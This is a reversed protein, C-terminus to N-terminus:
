RCEYVTCFTATAAATTTATAREDSFAAAYGPTWEAATSAYDGSWQSAAAYSQQCRSYGQYGLWSVSYLRLDAIAASNSVAHRSRGYWLLPSNLSLYVFYWLKDCNRIYGWYAITYPLFYKVYFMHTLSHGIYTCIYMCVLLHLFVHSGMSISPIQSGQLDIDSQKKIHIISFYIFYYFNISFSIHMFSTVLQYWTFINRNIHVLITRSAAWAWM